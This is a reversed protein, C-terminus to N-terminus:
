NDAKIEIWRMVHVLWSVFYAFIVMSWIFLLFQGLTTLLLYFSDKVNDKLWKLNSLKADEYVRTQRSVDAELRDVDSTATEIAFPTNRRDREASELAREADDFALRLNRLRTLASRFAGCDEETFYNFRPPSPCQDLTEDLWVQFSEDNIFQDDLRTAKIQNVAGGTFGPDFGRYNAGATNVLDRAEDYRRSLNAAVEPATLETLRTRAEELEVQSELLQEELSARLAIEEDPYLAILSLALGTTLILIGVCFSFLFQLQNFKHLAKQFTPEYLEELETSSEFRRISNRMFTFPVEFIFGFVRWISLLASALGNESFYYIVGLALIIFGLLSAIPYEWAVWFADAVVDVAGFM